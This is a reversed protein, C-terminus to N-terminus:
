PRKRYKDLARAWREMELWDRVSLEQEIQLQSRDAEYFVAVPHMRSTLCNVLMKFRTGEEVKRVISDDIRYWSGKSEGRFLAIYHSGSYMMLGLLSHCSADALPNLTQANLYDPLAALVQLVELSSPDEQPWILTLSIVKPVTTVQLRVSAQGECFDCTSPRASLIRNLEASLRNTMPLVTSLGKHALLSHDPVICLEDVDGSFTPLLLETV